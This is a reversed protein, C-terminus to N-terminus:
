VSAQIDHVNGVSNDDCENRVLRNAQEVDEPSMVKDGRGEAIRQAEDEVDKRFKRVAADLTSAAWGSLKAM